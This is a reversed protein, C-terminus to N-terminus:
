MEYFEKNVIMEETLEGGAFMASAQNLISRAQAKGRSGYKTSAEALFDAAEMEGETMGSLSEPTVSLVQALKIYMDYSRPVSKKLEYAQISRTSVGVAKALESQTLGKEMRATRVRDGFEM